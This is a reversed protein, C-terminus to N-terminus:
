LPQQSCHSAICMNQDTCALRRDRIISYCRAVWVEDDSGFVLSIFCKRDEYLEEMSRLQMETTQPTRRCNGTNKKYEVWGFKLLGHNNFGINEIERTMKAVSLVKEDTDEWLFAEKMKFWLIRIVMTAALIDSEKRKRAPYFESGREDIHPTVTCAGFTLALLLMMDCLPDGLCDILCSYTQNLHRVAMPDTKTYNNELKGFGEQIMQPM